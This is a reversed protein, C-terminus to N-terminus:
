PPFRRSAIRPPKKTKGAAVAGYARDHAFQFSLERGEQPFPRAESRSNVDGVAGHHQTIDPQSSIRTNPVVGNQAPVDVADDHAVMGVDLVVRHQVQRVLEGAPQAIVHGHAVRCNDVGALYAIFHQNAHARHNQVARHHAPLREDSGVRQHRLAHFDRGARQHEASRGPDHALQRAPFAGTQFM